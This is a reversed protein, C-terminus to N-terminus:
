KIQRKLNNIMENNVEVLEKLDKEQKELTSIMEEQISVLEALRKIEDHYLKYIETPNLDKSLEQIKLISANLIEDPTM